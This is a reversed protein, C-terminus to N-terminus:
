LILCVCVPWNIVPVSYFLSLQVHLYDLAFSDDPINLRNFYIFNVFLIM